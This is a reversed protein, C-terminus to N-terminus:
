HLMPIILYNDRHVSVPLCVCKCLADSSPLCFLQKQEGEVEFISLKSSPLPTVFADHVQDFSTCLFSVSEGKIVNRVLAPVGDKTLICNNGRSLAVLYRETSWQKFQKAGIFCPLVPGNDHEFKTTFKITSDAKQDCWLAVEDLRRLIQQIPQQPKRVLKRLQGLKNEFIFASFCDLPGLLKVDNALHVLNHVNYVLSEPGYLISADTVFKLLLTNAYDAFPIALQSSALIRIGICLLMFHEFLNQPLIGKLVAMGTYLLFERFETAKWRLLDDLTRPRRAFECPVYPSLFILKASIDCVLRRPLRVSLPGVPGKWYLLLRRTVGLCVLHMYDLGFQTVFGVPLPDLPCPEQHHEEDTQARFEEDTRLPSTTSLFVVKGCHEGYVTCKECSSYGSHSKIGKIFARAPADCVFSHIVVPINKNEVTLGNALIDTAEAVFDALFKKASNPKERGCFLAVVFPDKCTSNKVSCLIPWLTTSASKFLQLGDINIQIELKDCPLHQNRMMSKLAKSLGVYCYDGGLKKEVNYCTPTKVLTRPDVPLSPFHPKLISLLSGVAAQSINNTSAWAALDGRINSESPTEDDDSESDTDLFRKAGPEFYTDFLGDNNQLYSNEGDAAMESYSHDVGYNKDVESLLVEDSDASGMDNYNILEDAVTAATAHRWLTSRSKTAQFKKM